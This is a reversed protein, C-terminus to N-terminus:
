SLMPPGPTSRSPRGAAQGQGARSHHAAGEPDMGLRGLPFPARSVSEDHGTRAWLEEAIHPALPALMQVLPEAGQRPNTRGFTQTLHTTLETLRAISTNFRLTEMGEHVSEITRHLVRRSEDDLPADSVRLDGTEEDVMLRWVRQLFRHVGVIDRTEM